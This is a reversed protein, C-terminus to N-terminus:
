PYSETEIRFADDRFIGAKWHCNVTMYYTLISVIEKEDNMVIIMMPLGAFITPSRRPIKHLRAQRKKRCIELYPRNVHAAFM